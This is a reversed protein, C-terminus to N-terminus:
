QAVERFNITYSGQYETGIGSTFVRVRLLGSEPIEWDGYPICGNYGVSENGIVDGRENYIEMKLSFVRTECDRDDSLPSLMTVEGEILQGPEGSILYTTGELPHNITASESAPGENLDISVQRDAFSSFTYSYNGTERQKASAQLILIGDDPVTWAGERACEQTYPIYLPAGSSDFAAFKLELSGNFGCSAGLLWQEVDAASVLSGPPATLRYEIEDDLRDISGTVNVPGDRLDVEASGFVLQDIEFRFPGTAPRVDVVGNGGFTWRESGGMIRVRISSASGVDVQRQIGDCFGGGILQDDVYYASSLVVGTGDCSGLVPELLKVNLRDFSSPDLIYDKGAFPYDISDSIEVTREGSPVVVQEYEILWVTFAYNQWEPHRAIPGQHQLARLKLVGDEPIEGMLFQRCQNEIRELLVNESSDLTQVTYGAFYTDCDPGSLDISVAQGPEGTVVYDTGERATQLTGSVAISQGPTLSIPVDEYVVESFQAEFDVTGSRGRVGFSLKGNAPIAWPGYTSCGINGRPLVVENDSKIIWSLPTWNCDLDGTELIEVAVLSGPTGTVLYEVSSEENVTAAVEHPGDDLQLPIIQDNVPDVLLAEFQYTLQDPDTCFTWNLWKTNTEVFVEDEPAIFTFFWCGDGPDIHLRTAFGSHTSESGIYEGRSGDGEAAFVDIGVGAVVAAEQRITIEVWIPRDASPTLLAPEATVTQAPEICVGQNFWGTDTEVWTEGAPAVYTLVYCGPSASFAVYGATDTQDSAVFEGRGGSGNDTFLDVSVGEVSQDAKLVKAEIRPTATIVAADIDTLQEGAEVCFGRNLWLSGFPAFSFGAFDTFFTLVYCGPQLNFTFEGSGGSAGSTTSALYDGRSGDAAATFLDISIGDIGDSGDARVTGSVSAQGIPELAADVGVTSEGGEVCIPATTSWPSRNSFARGTPAIATVAYCGPSVDFRYNGSGAHGTTLSELWTLRNGNADASFLDVSVGDVPQGGDTVAGGISADPTQASAASPGLLVTALASTLLIAFVISGRWITRM